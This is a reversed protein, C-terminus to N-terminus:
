PDHSKMPGFVLWHGANHLRSLLEERSLGPDTMWFISPPLFSRRSVMEGLPGFFVTWGQAAAAAALLLKAEFERVFIEYTLIFTKMARM